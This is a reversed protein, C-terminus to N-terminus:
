GSGRARLLKSLQSEALARPSPDMYKPGMHYQWKHGALLDRARKYVWKVASYAFTCLPLIKIKIKSNQNCIPYQRDSEFIL